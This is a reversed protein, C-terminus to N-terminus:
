LITELIQNLKIVSNQDVIGYQDIYLKRNVEIMISQVNDDVNYYELPVITGSYPNNYQVNFGFEKLKYYIHHSLYDPTHFDSIGICFDPRNNDKILDTNFPQDSFSHCDIIIAKGYKDLKSQVAKNLAYHHKLYYNHFIWDKFFKNENRLDSGSDTKTYYFGRGYKFMEEQEDPLREVDCFIRNFNAIVKTTDKINFIEDTKIDTLLQIEKNLNETSLLYENVYPINISSHPIHLVCMERNIDSVENDSLEFLDLMNLTNLATNKM